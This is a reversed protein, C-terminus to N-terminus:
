FADGGATKTIYFAAFNNISSNVFEATTKAGALAISSASTSPATPDIKGSIDNLRIDLGSEVGM